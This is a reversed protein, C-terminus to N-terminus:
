YYLYIYHNSTFNPDVTVGLLGRESNNCLVSSSLSLAPTSLLSGNQYVRLAGYQTAILLRGDPTFALATPASINALFTDTFGAPVTLTPRAEVSGAGSILLTLGLVVHM